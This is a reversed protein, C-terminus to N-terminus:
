TRRLVRPAALRVLACLVAARVLEGVFSRAQHTTPSEPRSRLQDKRKHEVRRLQVDGVRGDAGTGDRRERGLGTREM